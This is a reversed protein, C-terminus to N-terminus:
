TVRVMMASGSRYLQGVVVGGAAAAADNAYSASAQLDALTIAGNSRAIAISNRQFVGSDNWRGIAFDDTAGSVLAAWALTAGRYFVVAKQQGAASVMGVNVAGGATTGAQFGGDAFAIGHFVTSPSLFTQSLGNPLSFTWSAGPDLAICGIRSRTSNTVMSILPGVTSSAGNVVSIDDVVLVGSATEAIAAVTRPGPCFLMGSTIRLYGQRVEAWPVGTTYFLSRFQSVTVLASANTLLFDSQNSSSFSFFNSINLVVPANAQIFPRLRGTGATGYLNVINFHSVSGNIEIDAFTGDMQCNTLQIMTFGGADPTIILRGYFSNFGRIDLGDCRGIRMAITQGDNFVNWLSAGLDFNWFHYGSVHTFDQIGGAAGEGLSLGCDLAGMEVDELWFVTNHNNSTVGDWAGGIRVRVIQIRFSDSGSAVAWPYMVGTGGAGSTGGAALTKFNARTGQDSPQAFTIGLDRIVPGADYSAATCFIVATAAPDFAQDVMLVSSGRSDGYFVQCATLNIQHNVRYTGTPLYVARHRTGGSAVQAAAANIAASSDAVGTPDAGYDLVNAVDTARDQASRLAPAGTAYYDLPGGMTGGAIPLFPGGIATSLGSITLDLTDANANLHDGWHEADQDYKPKYLGLKPTTTFESM